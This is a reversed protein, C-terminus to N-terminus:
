FHDTSWFMEVPTPLLTVLARVYPHKTRRASARRVSMSGQTLTEGAQKERVKVRHCGYRHRSWLLRVSETGLGFRYTGWNEFFM